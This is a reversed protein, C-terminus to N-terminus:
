GWMKLFMEETELVTVPKSSVALEKAFDLECAGDFFGHGLACVNHLKAAQM